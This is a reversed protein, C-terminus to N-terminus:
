FSYIQLLTLGTMWHRHKSRNAVRPHRRAAAPHVVMTGKLNPKKKMMTMRWSRTTRKKNKERRRKQKKLRKTKKKGTRKLRSALMTQQNHIM